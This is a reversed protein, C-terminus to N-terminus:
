CRTSGSSTCTMPPSVRTSTTGASDRLPQPTETNQVGDEATNVSLNGAVAVRGHRDRDRRHVGWSGAPHGDLQRVAAGPTSGALGRGPRVAPFLGGDGSVPRHPRRGNGLARSLTPQGSVERVAGPLDRPVARRGAAAGPQAALYQRGRTVTVAYIVAFLAGMAVGFLILGFAIGRM